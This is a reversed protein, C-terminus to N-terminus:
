HSVGASKLLLKDAGMLPLLRQLVAIMVGEEAQAIFKTKRDTWSITHVMTAVVVSKESLNNIPVESIKNRISTSIPCCIVLDFKENYHRSSLILAPRYKGIEKGKTPEFDIWVIDNQDPIYRNKM